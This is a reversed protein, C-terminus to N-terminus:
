IDLLEKLYSMLGGRDLDILGRAIRKVFEICSEILDSM